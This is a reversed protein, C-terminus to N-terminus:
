QCVSPLLRYPKTTPVFSPVTAPMFGQLSVFEQACNGSRFPGLQGAWFCTIAPVGGSAVPVIKKQIKQLDHSASLTLSYLTPPKSLWM